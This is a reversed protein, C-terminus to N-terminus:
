HSQHGFGHGRGHGFHGSGHGRGGGHGRRRSGELPVVADVIRRAEPVLPAPANVPTEPEGPRLAANAPTGQALEVPGDSSQDDGAGGQQASPADGGAAPTSPGRTAPPSHTGRGDRRSGRRAAARRGGDHGRERTGGRAAHGSAPRDRMPTRVKVAGPRRVPLSAVEVQAVPRSPQEVAADFTGRDPAVPWARFEFAGPALALGVVLIVTLLGILSISPVLTKNSPTGMASSM